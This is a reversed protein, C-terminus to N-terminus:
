VWRPGTLIEQENFSSPPVLTVSDSDEFTVGLLAAKRM